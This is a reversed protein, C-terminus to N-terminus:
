WACLRWAGNLCVALSGARSLTCRWHHQNCPRAATLMSWHLVAQFQASCGGCHELILEGVVGGAQSSLRWPEAQVGEAHCRESSSEVQHVQTQLERGASVLCVSVWRDLRGPPIRSGAILDNRKTDYTYGPEGRRPNDRALWLDQWGAGLPPAAQSSVWNMDQWLLMAQM